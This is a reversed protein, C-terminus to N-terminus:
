SVEVILNTINGSIDKVYLNFISTSEDTKFKFTNGVGEYPLIKKGQEDLGYVSDPNIGSLNDFLNITIIDDDISYSELTPPIKDICDVTIETTSVKDLADELYFTYGGNEHILFTAENKSVSTPGWSKGNDNSVYLRGILDNSGDIGVSVTVSNNTYNEVVPTVHANFLFPSVALAPIVALTALTTGGISIATAATASSGVASTFLGQVATATPAVASTAGATSVAGVTSAAGVGVSGLIFDPSFSPEIYSRQAYLNVATKIPLLSFSGLFISSSKSQTIQSKLIKKSTNLRSKVTGEPCNMIKAIDKIKFNKYYKLIITVKLSTDLNEILNSLIENQSKLISMEAPDHEKNLDPVRDMISDDSYDSKTQKSLRLCKTYTIRNIWAIFTINSKLTHLNSYVYTFVEQAVDEASEKNKLISYALFYTKQYTKKYLEIFAESDGDKTRQVLSTLENFNDEM